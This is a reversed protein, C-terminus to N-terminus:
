CAWIEVLQVWCICMAMCISKNLVWNSICVGPCYMRSCVLDRWLEVSISGWNCSIGNSVVEIRVWCLVCVYVCCIYWNPWGSCLLLGYLGFGWYKTWCNRVCLFVRLLVVTLLLPNIKYGFGGSDLECPSLFSLVLLFEFLWM